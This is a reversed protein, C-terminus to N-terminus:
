RPPPRGVHHGYEQTSAHRFPEGYLSALRASAPRASASPAPTSVPCNRMGALIFAREPWQSRPNRALRVSMPAFRHRLPERSGGRTIPRAGDERDKNEDDLLLAPVGTSRQPRTRHTWPGQPFRTRHTKRLDTVSWLSRNSGFASASGACSYLIGWSRRDGSPNIKLM